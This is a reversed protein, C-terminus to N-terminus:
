VGVLTNYLLLNIFLFLIFTVDTNLARASMAKVRLYTWCLKVNLLKSNFSSVCRAVVTSLLHKLLIFKVPSAEESTIKINAM